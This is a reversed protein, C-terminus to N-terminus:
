VGAHQRVYERAARAKPLAPVKVPDEEAEAVLWGRYDADALVRFIAPFDVCGDGPITFVGESVARCFSWGERRVREAIAPRVSKLHVHAIRSAYGKVVAFPDIGAFALHGPDLLLWLEPVAALLRDLDAEGQIVTGMHHHYVIRTEEAVAIAALHKLGAVFRPWEAETLRPNLNDGFGLAAERTGHICRTCEAVIAVRAGLTKLLSLHARFAAEEDALDRSALYTSHWGSVLRLGHRGLPEALAAATRPYAHGLETGAYGAARMERLITDLPVDGALENFDDNSWIIPNAGVLCDRHLFTSSTM